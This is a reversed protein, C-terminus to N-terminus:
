IPIAFKECYWDASRQRRGDLWARRAGVDSGELLARAEAYSWHGSWHREITELRPGSFHLHAMRMTNYVVDTWSVPCTTASRFYHAVSARPVLLVPGGLLWSRVCMETDEVGYRRMRDYGGIQDFWSRYFMQVCGCGVPIPHPDVFLPELVWSPTLSPGEITMGYGRATPDGAATVEPVVIGRGLRALADVMLSLFRPRPYCHADMFMVMPARADAAGLNRAGAVGLPKRPRLVRVHEVADLGDACGDTSADDVVVMEFPVDATSRVALM